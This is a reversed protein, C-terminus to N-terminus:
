PIARQMSCQELGFLDPQPLITLYGRRKEEADNKSVWPKQINSNWFEPTIFIITTLTSDKLSSYAM